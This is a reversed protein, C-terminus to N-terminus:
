RAGSGALVSAMRFPQGPVDDMMAIKSDIGYERRLRAFDYCLRNLEEEGMFSGHMSGWAMSLDIRGSRILKMLADIRNPRGPLIDGLGRTERLWALVQWVSEITWRFNPDKQAEDIVEDIQRAAMGAIQEPPVVFGHDYHSSPVIYVTKITTAATAGCLTAALLFLARGIMRRSARSDPGPPWGSRAPTRQLRKGPDVRLRSRCREPLLRRVVTGNRRHKRRSSGHRRSHLARQRADDGRVADRRICGHSDARGRRARGLLIGRSRSDLSLPRPDHFIRRRGQRTRPHDHGMILRGAHRRRGAALIGRSLNHSGSKNGRCGGSRPVSRANAGNAQGLEARASRCASGVALRHPDDKHEFKWVRDQA